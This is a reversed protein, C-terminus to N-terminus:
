LSLMISSVDLIIVAHHKIRMVGNVIDVGRGGDVLTDGNGAIVVLELVAGLWCTQSLSPVSQDSLLTLGPIRGTWGLTEQLWGVTGGVDVLVGVGVNVGVCVVVDVGLHLVVVLDVGPKRLVGAAVGHGVAGVATPPGGETGM